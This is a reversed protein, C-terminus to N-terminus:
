GSNLSYPESYWRWVPRQWPVNGVGLSGEGCEVQERSHKRRMGAVGNSPSFTKSAGRSEEGEGEDYMWNVLLDQPSLICGPRVSAKEAVIGVARQRESSKASERVPRRVEM